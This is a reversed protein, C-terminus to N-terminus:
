PSTLRCDMILSAGGRIASAMHIAETMQDLNSGAGPLIRFRMSATHVSSRMRWALGILAKERRQSCWRGSLGPVMGYSRLFILGTIASESFRNLEEEEYYAM